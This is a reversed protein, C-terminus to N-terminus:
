ILVQDLRDICQVRPHWEAWRKEYAPTNQGLVLYGQAGLEVPMTLDLEAIDGVVVLDEWQAGHSGLIGLLVNYYAEKRLWVKRDLGPFNMWEPVLGPGSTVIYKQAFGHVVGHVWAGEEGLGELRERVKVPNSNSVIYSAVGRARLSSLTPLFEPRFATVLTGYNDQYLTDLRGRWREPDEGMDKLVVQACVQAEVFADVLAPAVLRGGVQWGYTNPDAAIMRRASAYQEAAWEVTMGVHKAFGTQHALLFAEDGGPVPITATGDFDFVVVPM